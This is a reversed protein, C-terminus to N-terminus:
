ISRPQSFNWGRKENEERGDAFGINIAGSM